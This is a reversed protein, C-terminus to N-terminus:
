TIRRGVTQQVIKQTSQKQFFEDTKKVKSVVGEISLLSDLAELCSEGKFGDTKATLAGDHDITIIIRQEPM